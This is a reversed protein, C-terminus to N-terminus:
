KKRAREKLENALNLGAIGASGLPHDKCFNDVYIYNSNSDSNSLWDDTTGANLGSLFGNLWDENSKTVWGNYQRAKLWGSCAIDGRITNASLSHSSYILAILLMMLQKKL